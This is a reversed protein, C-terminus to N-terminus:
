ALAPFQVVYVTDDGTKRVSIASQKGKSPTSELVADAALKGFLERLEADVVAVESEKGNLIRDCVAADELKGSAHALEFAATDSKARDRYEALPIVDGHQIDFSWVCWLRQM